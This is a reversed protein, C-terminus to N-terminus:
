TMAEFSSVLGGTETKECSFYTMFSPAIFGNFTLISVVFVGM